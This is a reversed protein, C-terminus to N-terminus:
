ASRTRRKTASVLLGRERTENNVMLWRHWANVLTAPGELMSYRSGCRKKEASEEKFFEVHLKAEAAILQEDALTAIWQANVMDPIRM